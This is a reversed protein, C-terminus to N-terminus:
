EYITAKVKRRLEELEQIKREQELREMERHFILYCHCNCAVGHEQYATCLIGFKATRSCYVDKLNWCAYILYVLLM